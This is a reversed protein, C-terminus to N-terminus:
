SGTFADAYATWWGRKRVEKALQVLTARVGLEAGYLDCVAAVDSLSAKTRGTEIRSIKSRHWGLQAAADRPDTGEEERM